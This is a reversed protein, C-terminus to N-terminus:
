SFVIFANTLKRTYTFEMQSYSFIYFINKYNTFINYFSEAGEDM